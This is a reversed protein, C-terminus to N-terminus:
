RIKAFILRTLTNKVMIVYIVALFGIGYPGIGVDARM